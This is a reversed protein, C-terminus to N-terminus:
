RIISIDVSVTSAGYVKDMGPWKFGATEVFCGAVALMALRGHKIEAEQLFGQNAWSSVGIPDFGLDGPM